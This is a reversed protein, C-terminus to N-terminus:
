HPVVKYRDIAYSMIDKFLPAVTGEGPVETVGVFVVLQSTSNPLFGVFSINFVGKLYGGGEAAIEATGTKGAVTYGEIAAAQGTGGEVVTQLMGTLTGIAEKNYIIEEEEYELTNDSHLEKILFHPTVAYGNNLLAGYYRTMQLPTLSVGQGFSVNYSQILSWQSQELLYGSAEGPYDVGTLENLKYALIKEYLRDFGLNSSALSIGVNSSWDLIERLTMDQDDREHADSVYYEDAAIVAPCFLIDSPDMAGYELIASVSVAKFISGPEFATTISTLQETGAEYESTDSPNFFPDSACAFIEGTSADMIVSNGGKAGRDEVGQALLEELEQQMGIDISIIIDQGDVSKIEEQVGGTIPIGSRGREVVLKGSSGKLMEDYYLELGSIGNGDVDVFGIVQGGTQGNPYVRKTDSLFYIGPLELEKLEEAVDTDVKRKIYVFSTDESKLKKEFDAAKGGLIAAIQRAEDEADEVEYPNVYVTTADISTALVVGNRDYITGRRPSSEVTITRADRAQASYEDAVIVQLYILRLFFICAIAIFFVFILGMRGSPYAHSPNSSPGGQPYGHSLRGARSPEKGRDAM